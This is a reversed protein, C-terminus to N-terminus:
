AYILHAHVRPHSQKTALYLEGKELAKIPNTYLLNFIEDRQLRQRTSMSFAPRDKYKRIVGLAEAHEETYEGLLEVYDVVSDPRVPEVKLAKQFGAKALEKNGFLLQAKAWGGLQEPEEISDINVLAISASAQLERHTAKIKKTEDISDRLERLNSQKLNNKDAESLKFLSPLTFRFWLYGALLGLAGGFVVTSGAAVATTEALAVQSEGAPVLGSALWRSARQLHSPILLLQTLGVGVIIKTLWDSIENLQTNPRYNDTLGNANAPVDRGTGTPVYTPISFLLGLISGLLFSGGGLLILV